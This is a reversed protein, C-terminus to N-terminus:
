FSGNEERCVGCIVVAGSVGTVAAQFQMKGQVKYGWQYLNGKIPATGSTGWVTIGLRARAVYCPQEGLKNVKPISFLSEM